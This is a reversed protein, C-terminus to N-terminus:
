DPTLIILGFPTTLNLHSFSLSGFKQDLFKRGLNAPSDKAFVMIVRHSMAVRGSLQTM